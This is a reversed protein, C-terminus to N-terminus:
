KKIPPEPIAVAAVMYVLIGPLVGTLCTIVIWIVRLNHRDIGYYQALGALVGFIDKHDLDKYLKAM